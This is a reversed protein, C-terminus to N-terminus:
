RCCCNMLWRDDGAVGIADAIQFVADAVMWRLEMWLGTLGGDNVDAGYVNCLWM